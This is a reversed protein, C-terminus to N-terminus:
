LFPEFKLVDCSAHNCSPSDRRHLQLNHHLQQELRTIFSNICVQCFLEHNELIM